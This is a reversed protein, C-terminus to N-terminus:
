GVIMVICLIRIFHNLSSLRNLLATILLNRSKERSVSDFEYITYSSPCIVLLTWHMSCDCNLCLLPCTRLVWVMISICYYFWYMSKFTLLWFSSIDQVVLNMSVGKFTSEWSRNTSRANLTVFRKHAFGGMEQFPNVGLYTKM